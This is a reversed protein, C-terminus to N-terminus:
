RPPTDRTGAPLRCSTVLGTSSRRIRLSCLAKNYAQRQEDVDAALQQMLSAAKGLVEDTLSADSVRSAVVEQWRSAAEGQWQETTVVAKQIASVDTATDAMRSGVARLKSACESIANTEVRPFEPLSAM